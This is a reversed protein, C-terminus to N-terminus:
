KAIDQLTQEIYHLQGSVETLCQHRAPTLQYEANIVDIGHILSDLEALLGALYKSTDEHSQKMKTTM